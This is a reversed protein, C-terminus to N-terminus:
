IRYSVTNGNDQMIQAELAEGQTLDDAPVGDRLDISSRSSRSQSSKDDGFSETQPKGDPTQGFQNAMNKELNEEFAHPEVSITVENVRVGQRNLNEQLDQLRNELAHKVAENQAYLHATVDGSKETVQLFIKGLSQPHLEMELSSVRSSLTQRAKDVIQSILNDTNIDTYKQITSVFDPVETEAAGATGEAALANVNVQESTNKEGGGLLDSGQGSTQTGMDVTDQATQNIITGNVTQDSATDDSRVQQDSANAATQVSDDSSVADSAVTTVSVTDETTETTVSVVNVEVQDSTDNGATDQANDLLESLDDAEDETVPTLQDMISDDVGSFLEQLDDLMTMFQNSTLLSSQDTGTLTTFLEAANSPISLDSFSLGLTNMADTIDNESVGLDESLTKLIDSILDNAAEHREVEDDETEPGATKTNKDKVKTDDADTRASSKKTVAKRSDDVANDSIKTKQDTKKTAKTSTTSTKASDLVRKDSDTKYSSSVKVATKSASFTETKTQSGTSTKEARYGKDEPNKAGTAIDNLSVYNMVSMFDLDNPANSSTSRTKKVVQGNQVPSMIGQAKM